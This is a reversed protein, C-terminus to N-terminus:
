WAYWECQGDCTGDNSSGDCKSHKETEEPEKDITDVPVEEFVQNLQAVQDEATPSNAGM